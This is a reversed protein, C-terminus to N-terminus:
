YNSFIIIVNLTDLNSSSVIHCLHTSSYINVLVVLKGSKMVIICQDAKNRRSQSAILTYAGQGRYDVPIKLMYLPLPVKIYRELDSQLTAQM